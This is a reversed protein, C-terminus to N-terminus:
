PKAGGALAARLDDLPLEVCATGGYERWTTRCATDPGFAFLAEVREVKARAEDRERILAEREAAFRAGIHEALHTRHQNTRQQDNFHPDGRWEGCSCEVRYGWPRTEVHEALLLRLDAYDPATM